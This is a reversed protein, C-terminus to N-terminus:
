HIVSYTIYRTIVILCIRRGCAVLKCGNTKVRHGLLCAVNKNGRKEGERLTKANDDGAAHENNNIRTKKTKM